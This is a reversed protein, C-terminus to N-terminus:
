KMFHSKPSGGPAVIKSPDFLAHDKDDDFSGVIEMGCSVCILVPKTTASVKLQAGALSFSGVPLAIMRQEIWLTNPGEGCSPCKAEYVKISM